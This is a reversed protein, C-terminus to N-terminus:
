KESFKTLVTTLLKLMTNVLKNQRMLVTKFENFSKGLVNIIETNSNSRNDQQPDTDTRTAHTYSANTRRNPPNDSLTEYHKEPAPNERTSMTRYWHLKQTTLNRKQLIEQYINCGKDNFPHDETCLAFKAPTHRTKTCNATNHEGGCKVCRHQRRCYGKTHRYRQRRICQVTSHNKKKLNLKFKTMWYGTSIDKNNQNPELDVFFLTLPDNYKWDRINALNRVQHGHKEITEKM